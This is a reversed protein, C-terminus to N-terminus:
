IKGNKKVKKLPCLAGCMTCNYNKIDINEKVINPFLCINLDGICGENKRSESMIRDRSLDNSRAIYGSYAAIRAAIVGEYTDEISPIGIHESRSVATISSAGYYIANAHAISASIHDFGISIDNSVSMVRYPVDFTLERAKSILYPIRDLSAHGIGEIMICVNKELAKKTLHGMRELEMMHLSDIKADVVSAPRYMPGLSLGVNYEKVIDLIEDFYTYYPNEMDYEELIELMMMGGRSTTPIIRGSTNFLERDHRFVTAHLTIFDLGRECEDKIVNLFLEKNANKVKQVLYYTEYISVGGFPIELEKILEEQIYKINSSLSVDVIADTSAKIALKIKEKEIRIASDIDKEEEGVGVHTFLIPPYDYGINLKRVKRKKGGIVM